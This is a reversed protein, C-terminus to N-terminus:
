VGLFGLLERADWGPGTIYQAPRFHRRVKREWNERRGEATEDQQVADRDAAHGLDELRLHRARSAELLDDDDLADERVEGGVLLEDVHEDVLRLQGDVQDVWLDDLHELEALDILLVVDREFVHLPEVTEREQARAGLQANTQRRGDGDVDPG